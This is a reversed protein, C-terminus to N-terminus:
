DATMVFDCDNEPHIHGRSYHKIWEPTKMRENLYFSM